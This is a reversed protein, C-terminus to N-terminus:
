NFCILDPRPHASSYILFNLSPIAFWFSIRALVSCSRLFLCFSRSFARLSSNCLHSSTLTASWCDLAKYAWVVSISYSFVKYPKFSVWLSLDFSWSLYVNARSSQSWSSSAIVFFYSSSSLALCCCSLLVFSIMAWSLYVFPCSISTWYPFESFKLFM